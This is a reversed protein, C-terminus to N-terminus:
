VSKWKPDIFLGDIEALPALHSGHHTQKYFAMPLFGVDKLFRYVDEFLGAGIYANLLQFEIFILHVRHQRLM